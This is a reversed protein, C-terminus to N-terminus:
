SLLRQVLVRLCTFILAALILLALGLLSVLLFNLMIKPEVDFIFIASGVFTATAFLALMITRLSRNKYWTMYMGIFFFFLQWGLYTV